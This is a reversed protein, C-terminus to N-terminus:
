NYSPNSEILSVRGFKYVDAVIALPVAPFLVALKTGLIVEKLNALFQRLIQFRVNSVLMPESKKRVMSSSMNQATRIGNWSTTEKGLSKNKSEDEGNEVDTFEQYNM